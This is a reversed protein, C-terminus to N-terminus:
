ASACLRLSSGLLRLSEALEKRSQAKAHSEDHGTSPPRLYGPPPRDPSQLASMAAVRGAARKGSKVLALDASVPRVAVVSRSRNCRNALFLSSAANAASTWRCTGIT